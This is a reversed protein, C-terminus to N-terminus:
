AKQTKSQQVMFVFLGFFGTVLGSLSGSIVHNFENNLLTRPFPIVYYNMLGSVVGCLIGGIIGCKVAEGIKISM